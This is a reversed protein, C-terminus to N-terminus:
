RRRLTSLFIPPRPLSIEERALRVIDETHLLAKDAMAKLVDMENYRKTSDYSTEKMVKVFLRAHERLSLTEIRMRRSCVLHTLPPLPAGCWAAARDTAEDHDIAAPRRSVAEALDQVPELWDLLDVYARELRDFTRADFAQRRSARVTVLVTIMSSLVATLAVWDSPKM